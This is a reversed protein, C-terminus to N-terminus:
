KDNNHYKISWGHYTKNGKNLARRMTDCSINHELCFAKLRGAVIHTMGSSDTIQYTKASSNKDGTFKNKLSLSRLRNSEATHSGVKKGKNWPVRGKIGTKELSVIRAYEAKISAYVRSTIPNNYRCQTKNKCQMIHLARIMKNKYEGSTCKTLIWHCIFHERATLKVINDSNNTGGFSRPIIHHKETYVDVLRRNKAKLIIDWYWRQYKNDIFLM